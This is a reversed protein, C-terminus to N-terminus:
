VEEGASESLSSLGLAVVLEARKEGLFYEVAKGVSAYIRVEKNELQIQPYAAASQITEVKFDRGPLAAKIVAEAEAKEVKHIYAILGGASSFDESAASLRRSLEQRLLDLVRERSLRSYWAALAENLLEEIKKAKARHKDISLVAAIEESASKSRQAYVAELESVATSLQKDWEEAKAEVASDATSLIGQSQRRADELIEKELIETTQLEEM